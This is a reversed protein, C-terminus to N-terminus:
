ATIEASTAKAIQPKSDTEAVESGIRRTISPLVEEIPGFHTVSGQQVVMLKDVGCIVAPKHAIVVCTVKQKKLSDILTRVSAEGEADLNSTPEDLVVLKPEGYVARALGIRQRQGGSLNTADPGLVTDYADPLGLIMNHAGVRRAAKVVQSSDVENFRAINEAVTGPFLEIDQPLYGIYQGIQESAWHSLEAGDLRVQGTIPQWVGVMLKVLSSKGSGSPGTIGVAMGAEICFQAGKVSAAKADAGKGYVNNFVLKGKPEPLPMPQHNQYNEFVKSLRLYARRATLLNQWSSISSEVPSLARSMVISAAIMAGPSIIEAIALWAGVGLIAVQLSFRLCKTLAVLTGARDSALAQYALAAKQNCSWRRQLGDLMGMANIAETNRTSIDTFDNARRQHDAAHSLLNRTRYENIVAVTFLVILGLLAVHGLYPHLLYVFALFLPSWPVDLLTLMASGTLFTRLNDLDRLANASQGTRLLLRFLSPTVTQSFANSLRVMIRSRLMDLCGLVLLAVVAVVTLYFLTPENRSILVRDYIQLMYLPGTLILGNLFFSFFFLVAAHRKLHQVATDLPSGTVGPSSSKHGNM